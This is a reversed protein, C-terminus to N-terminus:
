AFKWDDVVDDGRNAKDVLKSVKKKKKKKGAVSKRPGNNQQDFDGFDDNM